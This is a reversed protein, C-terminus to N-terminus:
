YCLIDGGNCFGRDPCFLRWVPDNRTDITIITICASDAPMLQSVTVESRVWHTPYKVDTFPFRYGLQEPPTFFNAPVAELVWALPCQAPSSVTCTGSSRRNGIGWRYNLHRRQDGLGGCHKYERWFKEGSWSCCLVHRGTNSISRFHIFAAFPIVESNAWPQHTWPPNKTNGFGTGVTVKRVCAARRCHISNGIVRWSWNARHFEVVM